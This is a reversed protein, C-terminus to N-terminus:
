KDLFKVNKLYKIQIHTMKIDRIGFNHNDINSSFKFETVLVFNREEFHASTGSFNFDLAEKDDDFEMTSLGILQILPEQHM